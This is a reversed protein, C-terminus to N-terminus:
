GPINKFFISTTLTFDEPASLRPSDGASEADLTIELGLIDSLNAPVADQVTAWDTYFRFRSDGTFPSILEVDQGTAQITRYLGDRGPLSASDDFRYRIRQFLMVPNGPSLGPVGPELRVVRGEPLVTVSAANCTSSGPESVTTSAEIYEWQGSGANRWGWGSFGANAYGISDTPLISVDTQSADSACVVGFAHPVRLVLDRGAASVVGGSRDVMRLDSTLVNLAARATTRSDRIADETGHFRVQYAFVGFLTVGIVLVLVMTVLLEPLSFGARGDPTRHDTSREM